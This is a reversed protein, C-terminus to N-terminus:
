LSRLYDLLQQAQTSNLANFNNVVVNAESGCAITEIGPQFLFGNVIFSQAGTVVATCNNTTSAHAEIACVLDSCRGDHLFFLRQGLGWLPPTRFEDPGALGQSVGDTLVSGMHHLAFDSFPHFTANNFKPVTAPGTTLTDTHCLVCGIGPNSSTGFLAQGALANAGLPNCLAAGASNLGSAFDCQSPSANFRMFFAFNEIDSSIESASEAGSLTTGVPFATPVIVATNDEPTSGACNTGPVKENTFLENTVGLEVNAAEGAFLLLSKNQAKWGFRTITGDNGNTNFRGFIGLNNKTSANAALNAVLAADTVNEVFGEGYTPIPLRTILNHQSIATAFDPQSVTCGAPADTRGQITFLEHVGGDLTSGSPDNILDLIFRAEQIPGNPKLFSPVTNTAGDLTALAIQPNVAPSSGGITPQSHCVFCSNGNFAPGLGTLTNIGNGNSAGNPTAEQGFVTLAQFWFGTTPGGNAIVQGAGDNNDTAANPDPPELVNVIQNQLKAGTRVKSTNGVPRPGPDAFAPALTGPSGNSPTGGPTAGPSVPGPTPSPSTSTSPNSVTFGGKSQTSPSQTQAQLSVACLLAVACLGASFVPWNKSM